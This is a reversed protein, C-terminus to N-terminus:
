QRAEEDEMVPEIWFITEDARVANKATTLALAGAHTYTETSRRVEGNPAQWCIRWRARSLDTM